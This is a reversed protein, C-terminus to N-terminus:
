FYKNILYQSYAVTSEMMEFTMSSGAFYTNNEGQLTEFEDYFGKQVEDISVHPFYTGWYKDVTPDM